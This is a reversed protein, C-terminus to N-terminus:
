LTEHHPKETQESSPLSCASDPFDDKTTEVNDRPVLLPESYLIRMKILEAGGVIINQWDQDRGGTIRSEL